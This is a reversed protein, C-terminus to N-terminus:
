FKNQKTDSEVDAHDQIDTTDSFLNSGKRATMKHAARAMQKTQQKKTGPTWTTDNIQRTIDKSAPVPKTSSSAPAQESCAIERKLVKFSGPKFPNGSANIDDNLNLDQKATISNTARIQKLNVNRKTGTTFVGGNTKM